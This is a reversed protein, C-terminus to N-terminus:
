QRLLWIVLNFLFTLVLSAILCSVLPFYLAINERRWLIDGPLHGLFPPNVRSVLLIVGGTVIIVVGLLILIRGFPELTQV